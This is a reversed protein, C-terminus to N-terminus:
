KVNVRFLAYIRCLLSKSDKMRKHYEPLMQLFINKESKDITKILFKKDCTFMIPNQSRGGSAMSEKVKAINKIPHLSDIIEKISVSDLVRIHQFVKGAYKRCSVRFKRFEKNTILKSEDNKPLWDPFDKITYNIKSSKAKYQKGDWPVPENVIKSFETEYDIGTDENLSLCMGTLRSIHDSFEKEQNIRDITFILDGLEKKSDYRALNNGQFEKKEIDVLEQGDVLRDKDKENYVESIDKPADPNNEENTSRTLFSIIIRFYKRM